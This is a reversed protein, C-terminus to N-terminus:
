IRKGREKFSAVTVVTPAAPGFTGDSKEREGSVICQGKQLIKLQGVWISGNGGQPDLQKALSILEDDGPKFYIRFAAQQLRNIEDDAMQGKMFQTAFWASWGFKRGETLIKASPSAMKHSLNQAEDLVVVFPKDKSGYKQNYYWADWLMLETIIVQIERVFNTLQFIMVNGDAQTIQNWDFDGNVFVNSDLFPSMKSLVTKAPSSGQGSLEHRLKTMDMADGHHEIGSKCAEYIASYQQEGFSYVHSFISALRQAVDTIKELMMMGAVDMEHRRFPNIAVGNAYVIRQQLRDGLAAKFDDEVHDLRFGETYDFVVSSVGQLALEQLMGQIAYTKGQGSRGTILLHRNSLNKHGFDWYVDNGARDCGIWAKVDALDPYESQTELIAVDALTETGTLEVVLDPVSATEQQESGVEGETMVGAVIYAGEAAVPQELEVVDVFPLLIDNGLGLLMRQIVPQPVSVVPVEGSKTQIDTEDLDLWYGLVQGRWEIEFRRDIIGRLQDALEDYEDTHDGFTIQSFALARYLQAYWYRRRISNSQPDFLAKLVKIGHRVQGTAKEIHEAANEFKAMKCEIVTARLIVKGAIGTRATLYLFDPRSKSEDQIAKAGAEFWHCYSDLNILVRLGCDVECREMQVATLVYAMFSRISEDNPNLAAFLSIGDLKGAQELCYNAAQAVKKEDWHFLQRLKNGLRRQVAEVISSRATITLNYQGHPGKGTSFGIILHGEGSQGDDRLLAGDMGGDVCVVWYAKKHLNCILERRKKDVAVERVVKRRKGDQEGPRRDCHVVQSHATAARFQPQTLEVRRKSSSTGASPTPKFVMPYLCNNQLEIAEETESLIDFELNNLKLVDMLFIIDVTDELFAEIDREEKWENIFIRIDINEDQAFFTNVWYSLYQKGGKNEPRVLIHVKLSIRQGSEVAGQEQILRHLAAVIPQLEPPDIFAVSMTRVAGPFAKDYDAFVDYIVQVSPDQRAFEKEDFDEDYIGEKKLLDRSRTPSTLDRQACLGYASFARKSGFFQGARGPFIEVGEQITSLQELEVMLGAISKESIERGDTMCSRWWRVAGELIFQSQAAIKELLAPHWPPVLCCTADDESIVSQIDREISFCHIFHTLFIRCNQPLREAVMDNGLKGYQGVLRHLKSTSAELLDTYFGDRAVTRCFESFSKGLSFFNGAWKTGEVDGKRGDAEIYPYLNVFDINAVELVDFFEEESKLQVLGAIEPMIGIPLWAAVETQLKGGFDNALDAFAPAWGEQNSFVWQFEQEVIGKGHNDRLIVKFSIKNLQQNPGLAKVLGSEIQESAQRPMFVDKPESLVKISEAELGWGAQDIYPIIGGLAVAFSQWKEMLEKYNVGNEDRPVDALGIETIRFLADKINAGGDWDKLTLLLAQLLAVLPMGKIKKVNKPRAGKSGIKLKLIAETVSFDVQLLKRRNIELDKGMIFERLVDCFVAYCSLKNKAEKWWGADRFNGNYEDMQKCYRNFQSQSLRKFTNGEILDRLPALLNNKSSIIKVVAPNSERWIPLGWEPLSDFFRIRLEELEAVDSWQDAQCSLRYLNLPVLEFLWKYLKDICQQEQGEWKVSQFVEHYRGNLMSELNGPYLAYFDSLGGKDQVAETGMLLILLKGDHQPLLNRYVTMHDEHDVWSSDIEYVDLESSKIQEMVQLATQWEMQNKKKFEQYKVYSLKAVLTVGQQKCSEAVRNCVQEYIRVDEFGDIRVIAKGPEIPIQQLVAKTLATVIFNM